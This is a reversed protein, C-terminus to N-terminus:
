GDVMRFHSLGSRVIQIGAHICSSTVDDKVWRQTNPDWRGAQSKVHFDGKDPGVSVRMLM